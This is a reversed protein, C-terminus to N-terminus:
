PAPLVRQLTAVAEELRWPKVLVANIGLRKLEESELSGVLGSSVIVPVAPRVARVAKTFDEGSMQPMSLDTLVADYGAPAAKFAELADRPDDFVSTRYGLTELLRASVRAMGPHDDVLMLHQGAGPRDAEEELLPLYVHFASGKGPASEVLVAGDHGTVISQVVALGLGTGLGDARRSFFPEFIRRRTADEMGLGTDVVSLRVWRGAQLPPHASAFAYDVDVVDLRVTLTGGDPMAHVANTALNTLVQHLQGTDGLVKVPRLPVEARLTVRPATPELLKLTERVLPTVDLPRREVPGRRGFTLLQQALERGRATAQLISQSVEAPRGPLETLRQAHAAVVTLLNNFDHAIHSAVRGLAESKQAEAVQSELHRQMSEAERQATVDRAVAALRQVRGQEDLLPVIATNFWRLGAPLELSHEYIVPARARICQAYREKLKEASGAVLVEQAQKGIVADRRLGTVAEAAANLDECFVSGDLSVRYLVICDSSYHFIDRFRRESQLLASEVRSRQAAELALSVVDALAGAFAEEGAHWRRPPGRHELCLVGVMDGRLRVVVDLTSTIGEPEFYSARLVRTSEDHQADEVALLRERALADLYPRNDAVPLRPGAQHQGTRADYGDTMVLSSRTDDFLWVTCRGLGLVRVGAETVEKLAEELEDGRFRPSRTLAVLEATAERLRREGSVQAERHAKDRELRLLVAAMGALHPRFVWDDAGDRQFRTVGDEQELGALALLPTGARGQEHLLAVWRSAPATAPGLSVLVCCLPPLDPLARRAEELSAGRHVTVERAARRLAEGVARADDDSGGILLLQETM